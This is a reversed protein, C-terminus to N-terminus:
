FEKKQMIRISIIMSISLIVISVAYLGVIVGVPSLAAVGAAMVEFDVGM